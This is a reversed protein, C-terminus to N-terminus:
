LWLVPYKMTAPTQVTVLSWNSPQRDQKREFSDLDRLRRIKPAPAEADVGSAGGHDSRGAHLAPLQAQLAHICVRQYHM